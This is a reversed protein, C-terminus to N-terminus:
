NKPFGQSFALKSFDDLGCGEPQFAPCSIGCYSYFHQFTGTSLSYRYTHTPPHHSDKQSVRASGGNSSQPALQTGWLCM